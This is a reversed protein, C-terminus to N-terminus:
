PTRSTVGGGARRLRAQGARREVASLGDMRITGRGGTAEFFNYDAFEDDGEHSFWAVDTSVTELIERTAAQRESVLLVAAARFSRQAQSADPVRAGHEAIIDEITYTRITSATFIQAGNETTVVGDEDLLAAGDEAVWLDPVFDPPLMGALYLEIPSYPLENGAGAPSFSGMSYTGNGATYKGDGLDVLNAMDFGGLVGNASSYRWHSWGASLIYNGWQHMIEHLTPGNAVGDYFPIHVVGQLMGASGYHANRAVTSRGIGRVNNSVNSYSGIYGAAEVGEWYELNSVFILFDFADEFHEYARKSYAELHLRDVSGLDEEVPM